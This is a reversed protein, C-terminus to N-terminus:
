TVGVFAGSEASSYSLWTLDRDAQMEAILYAQLRDTDGLDLFRGDVLRQMRTLALPGRELFRAIRDGVDGAVQDVQLQSIIRSSENNRILVFASVAGLSTAMLVIITALLTFRFKLKM